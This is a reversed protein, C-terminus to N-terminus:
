LATYYLDIYLSLFASRHIRRAVGVCRSRPGRRRSEDSSVSLQLGTLDHDGPSRASARCIRGHEVPEPADALRHQQLRELLLRVSRPPQGHLDLPLLLLSLLIESTLAQSSSQHARSARKPPARAPGFRPFSTQSRDACEREGDTRRSLLDTEIPLRPATDCVGLVRRDVELLLHSVQSRRQSLRLDPERDEDILDLIEIRRREAGQDGHLMPRALVAPREME